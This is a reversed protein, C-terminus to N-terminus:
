KKHYDKRLKRDYRQLNEIKEKAEQAEKAKGEELLRRDDRTLASSPLNKSKEIVSIPFNERIDWFRVGDFEIHSLYSGRLVSVVKNGIMIEGYIYDSPMGKQKGIKVTCSVNYQKETYRVEGTTEHKLVGWFSNSFIEDYFDFDFKVGDKFKMYRKGKNNVYLTNLGASSSFQSYGCYYYSKNPGYVEYHSVPPHHSSQEVYFQTGDGFYGEFTEGLVPNLPKLFFSSCFFPSLTAVITYKLREVVDKNQALYMYYPMQFFAYACAQVMTIPIMVKIPFSITTLNFDGSLIKKGVQKIVDTGTSRILSTVEKNNFDIGGNKNAEKPRFIDKFDTIKFNKVIEEFAQFLKELLLVNGDFLSLQELRLTEEKVEVYPAVIAKCKIHNHSGVTVNLTDPNTSSDNFSEETQKMGFMRKIFSSM